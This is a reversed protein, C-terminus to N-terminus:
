RTEIQSADDILVKVGLRCQNAVPMRVAALRGTVTVQDKPRDALKDFIPRNDASLTWVELAHGQRDVLKFKEHPLRPFRGKDFINAPDVFAKVTVTQGEWATSADCSAPLGCHAYLEQLSLPKVHSKGGATTTCALATTLVLVASLFCCFRGFHSTNCYIINSLSNPMRFGGSRIHETPIDTHLM